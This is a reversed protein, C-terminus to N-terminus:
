GPQEVIQSTNMLAIKAQLAADETRELGKKYLSQLVLASGGAVHPSAMSTGSMNEYDDGPVTSYISGGPASIEPKFDLTHPVGISSFDSMEDKNPNEIWKGEALEFSLQDGKELKDIVEMGIEKSTTAAPISNPNLNFAPFDDHSEHPVIIVALAGESEAAFQAYTYITYPE